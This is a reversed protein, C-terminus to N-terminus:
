GCQAEKREGVYVWRKGRLEYEHGGEAFGVNRLDAVWPFPNFHVPRKQGDLPGGVIPLPHDPDPM